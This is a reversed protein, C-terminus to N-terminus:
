RFRKTMHSAFAVSSLGTASSRAKLSSEGRSTGRSTMDLTEVQCKGVCVSPSLSSLLSLVCETEHCVVVRYLSLVRTWRRARLSTTELQMRQYIELNPIFSFSVALSRFLFFSLFFDLMVRSCRRHQRPSNVSVYIMGRHSLGPCLFRLIPVLHM